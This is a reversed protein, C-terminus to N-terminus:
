KPTHEPRRALSPAAFLLQDFSAKFEASKPSTTWNQTIQALNPAVEAFKPSIPLNTAFEAKPPRIRGM